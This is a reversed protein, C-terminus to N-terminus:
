WAGRDRKSRGGLVESVGAAVRHSRVTLAVRVLSIVLLQLQRLEIVERVSLVLLFLM